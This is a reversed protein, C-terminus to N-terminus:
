IAKRRLVLDLALRVAEGSQPLRCWVLSLFLAMNGQTRALIAARQSESGIAFVQGIVRDDITAAQVMLPLAEGEQGLAGLLCGLNRLNSATHPHEEGLAKRFIALPQEFCPLAGA